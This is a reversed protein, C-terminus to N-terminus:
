LSNKIGPTKTKELLYKQKTKKFFEDLKERFSKKAFIYNSSINWIVSILRKKGDVKKALEYFGEYLTEQLKLNIKKEKKNLEELFVAYTKEFILNISKKEDKGLNFGSAIKKLEEVWQDLRYLETIKFGYKVYAFDTKYMESIVSFIKLKNQKLLFFSRYATKIANVIEFSYQGFDNDALLKKMCFLRLALYITDDQMKESFLYLTNIGNIIEHNLNNAHYFDFIKEYFDDLHNIWNEKEEWRIYKKQEWNVIVNKIRDIIGAGDLLFDKEKDSLNLLEEQEQETEQEYSFGSLSM